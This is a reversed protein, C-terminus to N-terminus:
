PTAALVRPCEPDPTFRDGTLAGSVAHCGGKCLPQYPCTACTGTLVGDKWRESSEGARAPAFSCPHTRGATDISVLDVAGACGRFGFARMREFDLNHAALYPISACDLRVTVDPFRAMLREALPWVGLAQEPTLRRDLYNSRARGAPKLRLLQIDTAGAAVAATVTAEAEEFTHRDLVLNVGVRGPNTGAPQSRKRITDLAADAGDYGRTGTFTAGLGDLSVNVQDFDSLDVDPGVGSTTTGIAVGLSRAHRAIAALDPHRLPEGGGLAVRMVGAAALGSLREQVVELPVHQGTAATEMHCHACPLGCAETIQLHAERPAEPARTAHPGLLVDDSTPGSRVLASPSETLRTTSGDPERRTRRSQWSEAAAWVAAAAVQSWVLVNLVNGLASCNAAHGLRVEQIRPNM